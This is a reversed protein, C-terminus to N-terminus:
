LLRVKERQLRKNPCTVILDSCYTSGQDLCHPYKFFSALFINAPNKKGIELHLDQIGSM